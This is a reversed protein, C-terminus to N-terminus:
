RWTPSRMTVVREASAGATSETPPRCLNRALTPWIRPFRARRMSREIVGLSRTSRPPKPPAPQLTTAANNFRTSRPESPARADCQLSIVGLDSTFHARWGRRGSRRMRLRPGRAEENRGRHDKGWIAASWSDMAEEPSPACQRNPRSLSHKGRRSRPKHARPTNGTTHKQRTQSLAPHGISRIEPTDCSTTDCDESGDPPQIIRTPISRHLSNAKM